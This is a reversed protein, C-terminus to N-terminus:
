KIDVYGIVKGGNRVFDRKLQTLQANLDALQQNTKRQEQLGLDHGSVGNGYQTFRANVAGPSGHHDDHESEARIKDQVKKIQTQLSGRNLFQLAGEGIPGTINNLGQIGGLLESGLRDRLIPWYRGIGETVQQRAMAEGGIGGVDGEQKDFQEIRRLYADHQGGIQEFRAQMNWPMIGNTTLWVADNSTVHGAAKIGEIRAAMAMMDANDKEYKLREDHIQKLTSDVDEHGKLGPFDSDPRGGLFKVNLGTIKDGIGILVRDVEELHKLFEKTNEAATKLGVMKLLGESMAEGFSAGAEKAEWFGESLKALGEHITDFIKRGVAVGFGLELLANFGRLSNKAHELGEALRRLGGVSKEAAEPVTTHGNLFIDVNNSAM